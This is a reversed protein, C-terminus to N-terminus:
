QIRLAQLGPQLCSRRRVARVSPERGGRWRGRLMRLQLVLPRIRPFCYSLARSSGQVLAAACLFSASMLYMYVFSCFRPFLPFRALWTVSIHLLAVDRVDETGNVVVTGDNGLPLEYPGRWQKAKALGCLNTRPFKANRYFDRFVIRTTGDPDILPAPNAYYVTTNDAHQRRPQDTDLLPSIALEWPGDFGNTSRLVNTGDDDQCRTLNTCQPPSPALPSGTTGNRCGEIQTCGRAAATGCGTVFLLLAGDAPDRSLHATNAIPAAVLNQKIYPGIPGTKSKAHVLQLNRAYSDLGCNNTAEAVVMHWTDGSEPDQIVTGGWSAVAGGGDFRHYGCDPPAPLLALRSCSDGTWAPDCVCVQSELDCVGNLSCGEDGTCAWAAAAISGSQTPARDRDGTVQRIGEAARSTQATSLAPPPLAASMLLPLLLSALRAPGPVGPPMVARPVVDRMM